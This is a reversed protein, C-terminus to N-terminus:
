NRIVIPGTSILGFPGTQPCCLFLNMFICRSVARYPKFYLPLGYKAQIIIFWTIFWIHPRYFLSFLLAYIFFRSKFDDLLFQIPRIRHSLVTLFVATRGQGTNYMWHKVQQFRSIYSHRVILATKQKFVNSKLKAVLHRLTLNKLSLSFRSYGSFRLFSCM